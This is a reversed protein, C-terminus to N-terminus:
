VQVLQQRLGCRADLVYVLPQPAANGRESGPALQQVLSQRDM